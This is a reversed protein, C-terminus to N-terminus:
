ELMSDIIWNSAPIINVKIGEKKLKYEESYTIITGNKLNFHKCANILGEIERKENSQNIDLCVQYANLKNDKDKLIFDCERNNNYYYVNGNQLLENYVLNELLKGNDRTTNTNVYKIFGNDACYIKRQSNIQKKFSYEYKMISRMLYTDELLNIIKKVSNPSKLNIVKTLSNYSFRGAINNILYMCLEEVENIFRIRNKVILDKIIIDSYLDRIIDGDNYKILEPMGGKHLYEDFNKILRVMAKSSINKELDFDKLKLFERFNFPRIEIDSHRGTLKTGIETKLLGANSGTILFKFGDDYFRRIFKEFGKTEQIEDLLFTKKDGFNKLLCEYLDQFDSSKFDLMREDAFNVFYFDKDNFLVDAIQRLLTSKGCRRIGTLVIVHPNKIKQKILALIEREIGKEKRLFSEQQDILIRSLLIKNM